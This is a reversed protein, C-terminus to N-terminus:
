WDACPSLPKWVVNHPKKGTGLGASRSSRVATVSGVLRRFRGTGGMFKPGVGWANSDPKSTVVAVPRFPTTADLFLGSAASAVLASFRSDVTSAIAVLPPIGAM